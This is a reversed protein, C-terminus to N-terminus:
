ANYKVLYFLLLSFFNLMKTVKAKLISGSSRHPAVLVPMHEHYNFSAGEAATLVPMQEETDEENVANNPQQQQQPEYPVPDNQQM